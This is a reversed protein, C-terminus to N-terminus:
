RPYKLYWYIAVTAFLLFDALGALLVEQKSRRDVLVPNTFGTTRVELLPGGLWAFILGGLLGGLHGFNDIYASGAVGIVFNVVAVMMINILGRRADPGIFARNHYIFVGQAALLGFIATSAGLSPVAPMFVLSVVNGAFGALLYLALFRLNGYYRELTPGMLFLAYMNFALHLPSAHLFVPTILRWWEGAAIAPGYKVGLETVAGGSTAGAVWQMAFLVITIGLLTYTVMPTRRYRKRLGPVESPAPPQDPASPPQANFSM